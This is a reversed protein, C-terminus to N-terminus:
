GDHIGDSLIEFVTEVEPLNPSDVM